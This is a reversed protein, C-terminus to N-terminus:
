LSIMLKHTQLSTERLHNLSFLVRALRLSVPYLLYRCLFGEEGSPIDVRACWGARSCRRGPTRAARARGPPGCRLRVAVRNSNKHNNNISSGAGGLALGNSAQPLMLPPAWLNIEIAGSWILILDRCGEPLTMCTRPNLSFSEGRYVFLRAHTSIPGFHQGRRKSTM